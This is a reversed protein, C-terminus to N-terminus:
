EFVGETINTTSFNYPLSCFVARLISVNLFALHGCSQMYTPRVM